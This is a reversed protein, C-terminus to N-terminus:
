PPRCSGRPELNTKARWQDAAFFMTKQGMPGCLALLPDVMSAWPPGSSTGFDPFTSFIMRQYPKPPFPRAWLGGPYWVIWEGRVFEGLVWHPVTEVVFGDKKPDWKQAFFTGLGAPVWIWIRHDLFRTRPRVCRLKASFFWVSDLPRYELRLWINCTVAEFWGPGGM